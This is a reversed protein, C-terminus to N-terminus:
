QDCAHRRVTIAQVADHFRGQVECWRAILFPPQTVLRSRPAGEGVLEAGAVGLDCGGADAQWKFARDGARQRIVELGGVDRQTEHAGTDDGITELAVRGREVHWRTALKFPREFVEAVAQVCRAAFAAVLLPRPGVLTGENKGCAVRHTRADELREQVMHTDVLSGVHAM